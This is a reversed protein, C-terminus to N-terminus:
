DELLDLTIDFLNNKDFILLKQEPHSFLRRGYAYSDTGIISGTIIVKVGQFTKESSNHFHALIIYDPIERTLGVMDQVVTAKREQHGHAFLVLKGNDMRFKGVGLDINDEPFKIRTNKLREKIFWDILRSFNEKEIHENKDPIARSHNDVVSRYIIEPAAQQLENLAEAVLEAAKMIQETVDLSQELRITPHILGSILDGLCLFYLKKVKHRKCYEVTDSVLKSVRQCAIEYNYKNYSNEFDPGLHLDSFTLIAEVNNDAVYSPAKVKPLAPLDKAADTICEKLVEIRAEDRLKQHYENRIDRLKTKEIYIKELESISKSNDKDEKIETPTMELHRGARKGYKYVFGRYSAPTGPWGIFESLEKWSREGQPVWKKHAEGILFYEERTFEGPEKHLSEIYAELTKNVM